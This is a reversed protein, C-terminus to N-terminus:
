NALVFPLCIHSCMRIGWACQVSPRGGHNEDCGHKHLHMPARLIIHYKGLTYYLTPHRLPLTPSRGEDNYETLGVVFVLAFVGTCSEVCTRAFLTARNLNPACDRFRLWAAHLHIGNGLIAHYPM